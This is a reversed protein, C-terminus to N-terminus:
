ERRLYNLAIELNHRNKELFGLFKNCSHCLLGRIAGSTHCHDVCLKEMESHKSSCIACKFDQEILMKNYDELQLGYRRNLNQKRNYHSREVKTSETYKKRCEKCTGSTGSSKSRDKHFDSLPKSLECKICIKTYLYETM